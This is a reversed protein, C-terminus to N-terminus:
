HWSRKWTDRVLRWTCHVKTPREASSCRPVRRCVLRGFLLIWLAITWVFRLQRTHSNVQLLPEFAVDLPMQTAFAILPVHLVSGDVNARRDILLQVCARMDAHSVKHEPQTQSLQDRMARLALGCRCNLVQLLFPLPPCLFATSMQAHVQGTDLARKLLSPDCTMLAHQFQLQPPQLHFEDHWSSDLGNHWIDRIVSAAGATWLADIQTYTHTDALSVSRMGVNMPASVFFM